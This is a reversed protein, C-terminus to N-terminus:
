AAVEAHELVESLRQYGDIRPLQIQGSAILGFLLAVASEESSFSAQTKTRRRFERNLNELANTTRISKWMARPFEYFTLLQNGAEELSRVVAPALPMWKAVLEDYAKRADIGNKAYVIRNYDRRLERRAHAPCHELLNARKYAIDVGVVKECYPALAFVQLGSACGIDLVTKPEVALVMRLLAEDRIFNMLGVRNIPLFKRQNYCDAKKKGFVEWM